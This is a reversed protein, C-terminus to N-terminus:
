KNLNIFGATIMVKLEEKINCPIQNTEQKFSAWGYCWLSQLRHTPHCSKQPSTTSSFKVCGINLKGEQTAYILTMKGSVFDEFLWERSEPRWANSTPKRTSEWTPPHIVAYSKWWYHSSCVNHYPSTIQSENSDTCRTPLPQQTPENDLGTLLFTWTSFSSNTWFSQQAPNWKDKMALSLFQGKKM